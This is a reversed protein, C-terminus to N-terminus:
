RTGRKEREGKVREFTAKIAGGRLAVGVAMGEVNVEIGPPINTAEAELAIQVLQQDLLGDPSVEGTVNLPIEVTFELRYKRDGEAPLAMVATWEIRSLDHVGLRLTSEEEEHLSSGTPEAAPLRIPPRQEKM